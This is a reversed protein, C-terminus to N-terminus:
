ADFTIRSQKPKAKGQETVPGSFECWERLWDSAFRCWNGANERGKLLKSTKLELELTRM